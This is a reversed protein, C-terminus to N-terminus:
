IPEELFAQDEYEDGVAKAGLKWPDRDDDYAEGDDLGMFLDEYQGGALHMYM